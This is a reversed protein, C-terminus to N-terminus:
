YWLKFWEHQMNCSEYETTACSGSCLSVLDFRGRSCRDHSIMLFWRFWYGFCVTIFLVEYIVTSDRLLSVKPVLQKTRQLSTTRKRLHNLISHTYLLISEAQGKNPPRDEKPTDKIPLEVTSLSAYVHLPLGRIWTGQTRMGTYYIDVIWFTGM